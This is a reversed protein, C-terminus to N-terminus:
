ITIILTGWGLDGICRTSTSEIGSAGRMHSCLCVGDFNQNVPLDKDHDKPENSRRVMHEKGLTHHARLWLSQGRELYFMYTVNYIVDDCQM